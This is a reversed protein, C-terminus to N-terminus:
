EDDFDYPRPGYSPRPGYDKNYPRPGYDQDYRRPEHDRHQNYRRQGYDRDEGRSPADNRAFVARCRDSLQPTNRQLCAVIRNTDPIQASCLRWVDPTCAQQQEWTGRYEQSYAASQLTVGCSIALAVSLFIRSAQMDLKRAQVPPTDARAECTFYIGSLFTRLACCSTFPFPRESFHLCAIATDCSGLSGAACLQVRSV